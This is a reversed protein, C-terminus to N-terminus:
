LELLSSIYVPLLILRCIKCNKRWGEGNVTHCNRGLSVELCARWMKSHHPLKRQLGSFPGLPHTPTAMVSKWAGACGHPEQAWRSDTGSAAPSRGLAPLLEAGRESGEAAAPWGIQRGIWAAPPGPPTAAPRRKIAKVSRRMQCRCNLENDAKALYGSDRRCGPCGTAGNEDRHCNIWGSM